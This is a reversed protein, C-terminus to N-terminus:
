GSSQVTLVAVLQCECPKRVWITEREAEGLLFGPKPAAKNKSVSQITCPMASLPQSWISSIHAHRKQVFVGRM